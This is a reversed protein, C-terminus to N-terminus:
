ILVYTFIGAAHSLIRCCSVKFNTNPITITKSLGKLIDAIDRDDVFFVGMEGEYHFQIPRFTGPIHSGLLGLIVDKEM